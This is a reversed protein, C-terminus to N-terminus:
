SGSPQVSPEVDHSAQGEQDIRLHCTARIQNAFHFTFGYVLVGIILWVLRNDEISFFIIIFSVAIIFKILNIFADIEKMGSFKEVSLSLYEDYTMQDGTLTLKRSKYLIMLWYSVELAIFVLFLVMGIRIMIDNTDLGAFFSSIYSATPIVILLKVVIYVFFGTTFIKRWLLNNRIKYILSNKISNKFSQKESSDSLRYSKGLFLLPHFNTNGDGSQSFHVDLTDDTNTDLM